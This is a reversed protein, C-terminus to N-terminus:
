RWTGEMEIFNREFSKMTCELLRPFSEFGKFLPMKLYNCDCCLACIQCTQRTGTEWDKDNLKILGHTNLRLQMCLTTGGAKRSHQMYLYGSQSLWFHEAVAKQEDVSLRAYTADHIPIFNQYCSLFNTNTGANRPFPRDEKTQIFGEMTTIISNNISVRQWFSPDVPEKHVKNHEEATAAATSTGIRGLSVGSGYSLLAVAPLVLGRGRSRWRSSSENDGDNLESRPPLFAESANRKRVTRPGPATGGEATKLPEVESQEM